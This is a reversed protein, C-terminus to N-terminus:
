FLRQGVSSPPDVAEANLPACRNVV